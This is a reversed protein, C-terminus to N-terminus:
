FIRSFFKRERALRALRRGQVVWDIRSLLLCDVTIILVLIAASLPFCCAVVLMLAIVVRSAFPSATPPALGPTKAPRRKWWLVTGSGILLIVVMVLVINLLWNWVGLDGQHLPIFAAMAKGMLPYDTFTLEALVAGNSPDVHLIRENFPNTLDGAITTASLTWVGTEGQPLHVRYHHFGQTQAFEVLKDLDYSGSSTTSTPMPTQELAWPIPNIGEQQMSQHTKEAGSGVYNTGPLSSWAQVLKGGWVNTWALGSILFFLLPVAIFVGMLRHWRRWKERDTIQPPSVRQWSRGPWALYIGTIVMLVAFGAAIEIVADGFDGLYLSGHFRQLRAYLTKAPDLIGLIEGSYPNLYVTTSPANHGSHGSASETVSFRASQDAASPPLYLTVAGNPYRTHVRALLDSVPLSEGVAEVTTLERHLLPEIPKSILMLLGSLALMLLFPIVFLAAYFHWRWVARYWQSLPSRASQASVPTVSKNM